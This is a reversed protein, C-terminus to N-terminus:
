LKEGELDNSQLLNTGLFGTKPLLENQTDFVMSSDTLVEARVSPFLSSFMWTSSCSAKMLPDDLNKDSDPVVKLGSIPGQSAM